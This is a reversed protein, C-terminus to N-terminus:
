FCLSLYLSSKLRLRSQRLVFRLHCDNALRVFRSVFHYNCLPLFASLSRYMTALALLRLAFHYTCHHSLDWNPNGQYLVFTVTTHWVYLGLSLIITVTFLDAHTPRVLHLPYNTLTLRKHAPITFPCTCPLGHYTFLQPCNGDPFLKTM